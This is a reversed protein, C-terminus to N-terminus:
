TGPATFTGVSGDIAMEFVSETTTGTPCIVGPAMTWYGTYKQWAGWTGNFGTRYLAYDAGAGYVDLHGSACSAVGPGSTLIGGDSTWSSWAVGDWSRQWLASDQGRVFLDIRNAASSVAGPDAAIVGGLSQWSSWYTSSWDKHWLANDQGRAFVDLRGTGWSSVTPASTIVGGLSGWGSWATGNWSRHWLANDHGRVFVDIQNAGWSVAAPASELVGGLSEWSSWSTGNWMRHWLALDSGRIFIDTRASGWSSAAIASTTIGGLSTWGSPLQVGISGTSNVTFSWSYATGNVTLSVTYNVGPTLPAQPIVIVGGRSTLYSSLSANTSDIVCHRLAVGNGTFSHATVTTSVNGGLEVFAPLGTPASYGSCAQLPDPFEGGGYSTLPVSTGNGPFYVPFSGGTFSNGRLTDVAAGMDWGSKVERYSGFGTSTLRPDMMGMAHFPAQMWWDIAQEDTTATTSSVYINSNRAATDGATTYYPTGATEYHTVLDNKVMYVAHDYDGASWTTNETLQSLGEAARWENFRSLWGGSALRPDIHVPQGKGAALLGLAFACALVAACRRM